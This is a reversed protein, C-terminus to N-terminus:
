LRQIRAQLRAVGDRLEDVQQNFADVEVKTPTIRKEEQLYETTDAVLKDRVKALWQLGTKAVRGIQHAAVDGMLHSLHAEWDINLDVLLRNFQEGVQTNGCLDIEGQFLAQTKDAAAQRRIFAGVTGTLMADPEGDYANLVMVRDRTPLFYFSVNLDTWHLGIVKDQLQALRQPTHVDLALLQNV